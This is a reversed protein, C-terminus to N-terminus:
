KMVLFVVRFFDFLYQSIYSNLKVANAPFARILIATTGKYLSGVGEKRWLERFVDRAGNPYKDSPAICYLFCGFYVVREDIELMGSQLRSKLVDAPM